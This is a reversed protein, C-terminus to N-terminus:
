INDRKVMGIVILSMHKSLNFSKQLVELAQSPDGDLITVIQGIDIKPLYM